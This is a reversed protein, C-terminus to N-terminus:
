AVFSWAVPADLTTKLISAHVTDSLFGLIEMIGWIFSEYRADTTIIMM